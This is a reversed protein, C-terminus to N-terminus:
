KEYNKKIIMQIKKKGDYTFTVEILDHSKYKHQDLNNYSIWLLLNPNIKFFDEGDSAFTVEILYINKMFSSTKARYWNDQARLNECIILFM